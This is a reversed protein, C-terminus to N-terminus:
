IINLLFNLAERLTFKKLLLYKTNMKYTHISIKRYVGTEHQKM